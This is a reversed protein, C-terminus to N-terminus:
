CRSREITHLCHKECYKVLAIGTLRSVFGLINEVEVQFCQSVESRTLCKDFPIYGRSKLIFNINGGMVGTRSRKKGRLATFSSPASIGLVVVAM